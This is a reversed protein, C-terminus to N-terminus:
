KIEVAILSAISKNKNFINSNEADHRRYHNVVLALSIAYIPISPHLILKHM